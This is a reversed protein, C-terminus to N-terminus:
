DLFSSNPEITKLRSQLKRRVITLSELKSPAIGIRIKQFDTLSAIEKEVKLIEEKLKEAESSYKETNSDGFGYEIRPINNDWSIVPIPKNKFGINAMDFGWEASIKIIDEIIEKSFPTAQELTASEIIQDSARESEELVQKSFEFSPFGNKLTVKELFALRNGIPKRFLLVCILLVVPFNIASLSSSFSDPDLFFRYVLTGVALLILIALSISVLKGIARHLKNKM